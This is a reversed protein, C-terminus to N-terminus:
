DIEHEKRWDAILKMLTTAPNEEVPRDKRDIAIRWDGEKVKVLDNAKCYKDFAEDAFKDFDILIM